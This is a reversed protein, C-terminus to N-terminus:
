LQIGAGCVSGGVDHGLELPQVDACESHICYNKLAISINRNFLKISKNIM